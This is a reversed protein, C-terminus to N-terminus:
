VIHPACTNIVFWAMLIFGERQLNWLVGDLAESEKSTLIGKSDTWSEYLLAFPESQNGTMKHTFYASAGAINQFFIHLTKVVEFGGM